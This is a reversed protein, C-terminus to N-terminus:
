GRAAHASHPHPGRRENSDRDTDFERWGQTDKLLPTGCRDCSTRFNLEDHWVRRRNVKHRAVLCLLKRLV